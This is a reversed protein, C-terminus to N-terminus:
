TAKSGGIFASRLKADCLELKQKCVHFGGGGMGGGGGEERGRGKGRGGKRRNM